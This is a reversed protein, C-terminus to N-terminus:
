HFCYVHYWCAGQYRMHHEGTNTNQFAQLLQTKQLILLQDYKSIDDIRESGAQQGRPMALHQQQLLRNQEPHRLVFISNHWGKPPRETERNKKQFQGSCVSWASTYKLNHLSALLQKSLGQWYILMLIVNQM